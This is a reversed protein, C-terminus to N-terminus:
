NPNLLGYGHEGHMSHDMGALEGREELRLGVTREVLVLLVLTGVASAVGAVVVGTAQHGFQAWIGGEPVDNDSFFPQHYLEGPGFKYGLDSTAEIPTRSSGLSATFGVGRAGAVVAAASGLVALAGIAALTNRTFRSRPSADAERAILPEKEEAAASSRATPTM